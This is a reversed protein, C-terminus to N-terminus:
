AAVCQSDWSTFDAVWTADPRRSTFQREVLDAPCAAAPDAITTRRSAGRRVGALGLERMLREVTCRAPIAERNLALWVKRAGCVGYNDQHVRSIEEKLQEDRLV